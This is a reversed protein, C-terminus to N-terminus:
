DIPNGCCSCTNDENDSSEYEDDSSEDDDDSEDDDYEDSEDDFENDIDDEDSEDDDVDEGNLSDRWNKQDNNGVPSGEKVSSSNGGCQGTPPNVQSMRLLDRLEIILEMARNYGTPFVLTIYEQVIRDIDDLINQDKFNERAIKRVKSPLHKRGTIIPYVIAPDSLGMVYRLLMTTIWPSTSPYKAILFKEIRQDELLNFILQARENQAWKVIKSNMRPSFLIHATEHFILGHLREITEFDTNNIYYENLFITEGDTSAPISNNLRLVKVEINEKTLIRCATRYVGTIAQLKKRKLLEEPLPTETLVSM